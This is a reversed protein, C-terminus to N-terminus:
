LNGYILKGETIIQKFFISKLPAEEAERSTLVIIDVPMHTKLITHVERIRERFSKKTNKIMLIDLDSDIHPKGWAYSGFLIIAQPKMKKLQEFVLEQDTM